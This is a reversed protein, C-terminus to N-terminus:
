GQLHQYQNVQLHQYQNVKWAEYRDSVVTWIERSVTASLGSKEAEHIWLTKSWLLDEGGCVSRWSEQTEAAVAM